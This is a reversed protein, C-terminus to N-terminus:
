RHGAAIANAPLRMVGDSVKRGHGVHRNRVLGHGDTITASPVLAKLDDKFHQSFVAGGSGLNVV